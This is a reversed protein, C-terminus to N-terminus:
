SKETSLAQVLNIATCNAWQGAELQTYPPATLTVEYVGPVSLAAVIQSPV